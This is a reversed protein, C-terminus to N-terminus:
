TIVLDSGFPLSVAPIPDSTLGACLDKIRRNFFVVTASSCRAPQRSFMGRWFFPDDGPSNAKHGTAIIAKPFYININEITVIGIKHIM